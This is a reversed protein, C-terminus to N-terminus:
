DFRLFLFLFFVRSALFRRRRRIRVRDVRCRWYVIEWYKLFWWFMWLYFCLWICWWSWCCVCCRGFLDFLMLRRSAAWVGRLYFCSSRTWFRLCCKVFCCVCWWVWCVFMWYFSLEFVWGVRWCNLLLCWRLAIDCALRCRCWCFLCWELCGVVVWCMLCWCWVM